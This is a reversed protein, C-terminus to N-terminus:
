ENTSGEQTDVVKTEEIQTKNHKSIIYRIVHNGIIALVGAAVFVFSWIWSWNGDNGMNYTPDRLPEMIARTLGYWVIYGFGIDLPKKWKKLAHEVFHALFFYGLLNVFGEILFLPVYMQGAPTPVGSGNFHCNNFIVRPLWAFLKDDVLQGYVEINFFNGWRGIAQAILISPIAIDAVKIISYGKGKHRWIFWLVGVVIGTPAGGMITLGGEHISCMSVFSEWPQGPIIFSDLEGLVYFIRAGIIGAPLAILFTSELLGHKGYELYMKHDCLFYVLVAGSLICIAYWAISPSTGSGPYVLGEKFNIGNYLPYHMYEAFGDSMVFFFVLSLTFAIIMGRFLWKDLKEPINKGYYHLIFANVAGMFLSSFLLSGIIGLAIEGAKPSVDKWWYISVMMMTFTIALAGLLIGEIKIVQVYDIKAQLSKVTARSKVVMLTGLVVTAIAFIIFLVMGM